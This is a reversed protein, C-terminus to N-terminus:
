YINDTIITNFTRTLAQGSRVVSSDSELQVESGIGKLPTDALQRVLPTIMVALSMVCGTKAKPSDVGRLLPSNNSGEKKLLPCATLTPTTSNNKFISEESFDITMASLTTSSWYADPCAGVAVHNRLAGWGKTRTLAQGSRVESSDSESRVESGRGKLPTGRLPSPHLREALIIKSLVEFNCVSGIFRSSVERSPPSKAIVSINRDQM